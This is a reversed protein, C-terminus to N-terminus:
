IINLKKVDYFYPHGRKNGTKMEDPHRKYQKTM